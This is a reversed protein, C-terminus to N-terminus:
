CKKWLSSEMIHGAFSSFCSIIGFNIGLAESFDGKWRNMDLRLLHCFIHSNIDYYLENIKRIVSNQPLRVNSQPYKPKGSASPVGM